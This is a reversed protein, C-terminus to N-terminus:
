ASIVALLGFVLLQAIASAGALTYGAAGGLRRSFLLRMALIALALAVVLALGINEYLALPLGVAIVSAISFERFTLGGEYPLGLGWREIPRLGYGVSVMTWRSLTMALVLAAARQAPDHLASLLWVQAGFGVTGVLAGMPGIRALGTAAGRAGRRLAATTDALGRWELGLTVIVTLTLTALSRAFIGFLTGFARDCLALAIGFVLGIAPLFALARARSESSGSSREDLLPWYTLTAAALLLELAAGRVIGPAASADGGDDVSKTSRTAL